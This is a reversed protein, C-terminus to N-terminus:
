KFISFIKKFMGNGINSLLKEINARLKEENSVKITIRIEDGEFYRSHNIRVDNDLGLESCSKDFEDEKKSVVPYRMSKILTYIREGRQRKNSKSDSTILSIEKSSLLEVMEMQKIQKLDLLNRITEKTENINTSSERFLVRWVIDREVDDLQMLLFAKEPEIECKAVAKKIESGLRLLSIYKDIMNKNSPVGLLPTIESMLRDYSYGTDLFKKIVIGKEIENFGRSSLNDHLVLLLIEEDNLGDIVKAEISVQGLEQCAMIRQYGCVITYVGNVDQNRKLIVPNILGVNRISEKVVDSDRGYRFLYRDYGESSLDINDSSVQILEM